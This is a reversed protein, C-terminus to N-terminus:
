SFLAVVIVPGLWLAVLQQEAALREQIDERLQDQHVSGLLNYRAVM